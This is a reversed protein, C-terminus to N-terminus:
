SRRRPSDGGSSTFRACQAGARGRRAQADLLRFRLPSAFTFPARSGIGQKQEGSRSKERRSRATRGREAACSGRGGGPDPAAPVPAQASRVSVCAPVSGRCVALVAADLPSDFCRAPM